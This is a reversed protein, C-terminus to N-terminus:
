QRAEDDRRVWPAQMSLRFTSGSVEMLLTMLIEDAIAQATPPPVVNGIMERRKADSGPLELWNGDPRRVPLGQLAALELTTLPRHWTGDLAVIVPPPEPRDNLVWRPDAVAAAGAHVDASAAVTPAPNEWDLM